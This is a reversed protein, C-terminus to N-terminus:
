PFDVCSDTNQPNCRKIRNISLKVGKIVGYKELSMIAYDSCSPYFRCVIHKKEKIHKGIKGQWIKRILFILFRAFINSNKM